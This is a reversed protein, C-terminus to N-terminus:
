RVSQSVRKYHISLQVSISNITQGPTLFSGGHHFAASIDTIRTGRSYRTKESMKVYRVTSIKIRVKTAYWHNEWYRPVAHGGSSVLGEM